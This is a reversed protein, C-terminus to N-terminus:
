RSGVIADRGFMIASRLNGANAPGADRGVSLDVGNPDPSLTRVPVGNRRMARAASQVGVYTIVTM